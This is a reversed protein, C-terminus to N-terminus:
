DSSKVKTTDLTGGFPKGESTEFHYWDVAEAHIAQNMKTREENIQVATAAQDSVIANMQTVSQEYEHQLRLLELELRVLRAHTDHLQIM